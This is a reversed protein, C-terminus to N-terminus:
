LLCLGVVGDKKLIGVDAYDTFGAGWGEGRVWVMFWCSLSLCCKGGEEGCEYGRVMM